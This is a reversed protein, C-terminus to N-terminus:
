SLQYASNKASMIYKHSPLGNFWNQKCLVQRIVIKTTCEHNLSFINDFKHM